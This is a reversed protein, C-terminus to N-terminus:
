RRPGSDEAGVQFTQILHREAPDSPHQFAQRPEGVHQKDLWRLLDAWIRNSQAPTPAQGSQPLEITIVSLKLYLGAYDGLSGPYAGLRQLSLYGLRRPPDRPGDFDLLGYPAHISVVADPKFEEIQDIIWRTEPESAPKLGPYRRPDRHTTKVWYENARQSWDPTPFNRNLDVGASNTRRSPQAFVGDLDVCPLVRWQFHPDHDSALKELWQFAIVAASLEDGHIGGLLLVRPPHGNGLPAFDRSLMARGQATTHTSVMLGDRRCQGEQFGRIHQGLRRCLQDVPDSEAAAVPYVRTALFFLIIANFFVFGLKSKPFVMCTGQIQNYHVTRRKESTQRAVDPVSATIRDINPM